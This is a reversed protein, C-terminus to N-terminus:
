FRFIAMSKRLNSLAIAALEPAGWITQPAGSVTRGQHLSHLTAYETGYLYM